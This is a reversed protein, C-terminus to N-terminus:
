SESPKLGAVFARAEKLLKGAKAYYANALNQATAMEKRKEQILDQAKSIAQSIDESKFENGPCGLSEYKQWAEQLKKIDNELDSVLVSIRGARVEIMGNNSEFSGLDSELTGLDSEVIGLVFDTFPQVSADKKGM